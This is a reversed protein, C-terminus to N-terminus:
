RKGGKLGILKAKKKTMKMVTGDPSYFYDGFVRNEVDADQWKCHVARAEKLSFGRAIDLSHMLSEHLLPVAEEPEWFRIWDDVLEAMEGVAPIEMMEISGDASLVCDEFLNWSVVSLSKKPLDMTKSLSKEVKKMSDKIAKWGSVEHPALKKVEKGLHRKGKQIFLHMEDLTYGGNQTLKKSTTTM